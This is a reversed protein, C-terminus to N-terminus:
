HRLPKGTDFSKRLKNLLDNKLLIEDTGREIERLQEDPSIKM